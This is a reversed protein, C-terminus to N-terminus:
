VRAAPVDNSRLSVTEDAPVLTTRPRKTVTGSLQPLVQQVPARGYGGPEGGAGPPMRQRPRRMGGGAAGAGAGHRRGLRLGADVFCM